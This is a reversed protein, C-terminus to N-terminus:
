DEEARRLFHERMEGTTECFTVVSVESYGGLDRRCYREAWRVAESELPFEELLQESQYGYDGYIKFTM